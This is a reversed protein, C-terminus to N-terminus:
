KIIEKLDVSDGNRWAKVTIFEYLNPRCDLFQAYVSDRKVIIYTLTGKEKYVSDGKQPQALFLNMLYLIEAGNKSRLVSCHQGYAEGVYAIRFSGAENIFQKNTKECSRDCASFCLSTFVIFLLKYM